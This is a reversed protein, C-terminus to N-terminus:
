AHPRDGVRETDSPEAWAPYDGARLDPVADLLERSYAATPRMSSTM